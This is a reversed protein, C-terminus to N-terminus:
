GWATDTRVTSMYVLLSDCSVMLMYRLNRKFKYKTWTKNQTYQATISYTLPCFYDIKAIHPCIGRWAWLHEEYLGRKSVTATCHQTHTDALRGEQTLIAQTQCCLTHRVAAAQKAEHQSPCELFNAGTLEYGDSNLLRQQFTCQRQDVALMWPQSKRRYIQSAQQTQRVIIFWLMCQDFYLM